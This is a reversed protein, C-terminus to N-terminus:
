LRFASVERLRYRKSPDREQGGFGSNCDMDSTEVKTGQEYSLSVLVLILKMLQWVKNITDIEVGNGFSSTLIM